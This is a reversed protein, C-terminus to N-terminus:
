KVGGNTRKLTEVVEKVEEIKKGQELQGNRLEEHRSQDKVEHDEYIKTMEARTDVAVQKAENAAKTVHGIETKIIQSTRSDQAQLAGRFQTMDLVMQKREAQDAAQAQKEQEEQRGEEKAHELERKRKEAIAAEAQKRNKKILYYVPVVGFVASVVVGLMVWLPENIEALTVDM